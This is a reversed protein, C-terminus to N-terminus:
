NLFVSDLRRLNVIPTSVTEQIELAIHVDASDTKTQCDKKINKFM